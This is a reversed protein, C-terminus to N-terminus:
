ATLPRDPAPFPIVKRDASGAAQSLAGIIKEARRRRRSRLAAKRLMAPDIRSQQETLYSTTMTIVKETSENNKSYNKTIHDGAKAAATFINMRM